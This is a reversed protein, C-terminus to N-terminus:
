HGQVRLRIVGHHKDGGISIPLNVDFPTAAMACSLDIQTEIWGHDDGWFDLEDVDIHVGIPVTQGVPIRFFDGFSAGVQNVANHKVLYAMTNTHGRYVDFFGIERFSNPHASALYDTTFTFDFRGDKDGTSSSLHTFSWLDLELDCTAPPEPEPILACAEAPNELTREFVLDVDHQKTGKANRLEISTSFAAEAEDPPCTLTVPVQAGGYENATKITWSTPWLTVIDLESATIQMTTDVTDGCPVDVTGLDWARHETEDLEVQTVGDEYPLVRTGNGQGVDATFRFEGKEDSGPAATHTIDFGSFAFRCAYEAPRPTCFDANTSRVRATATVRHKVVGNDQALDM